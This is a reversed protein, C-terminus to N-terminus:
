VQEIDDGDAQLHHRIKYREHLGERELEVLVGYVKEEVFYSRSEITWLQGASQNILYLKHKGPAKM